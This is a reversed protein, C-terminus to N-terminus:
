ANELCLQITKTECYEDLLREYGGSRGLGSQKFGGFPGGGFDIANVAVGGSEIAKAMRIGRTASQTFVYAALGYETDNAMKLAKDEDSFRYCAAVPGFIEERYMRMSENANVLITPAYFLTDEEILRGGCEIKAGKEIADAVLSEVKNLGKHNIMPGMTTEPELGDGVVLDKIFETLYGVFEDHISEHLLFRNATVCIQGCNKFKLAVAQKAALQIDADEFVIFPANGGLELLLKKVSQGSQEYLYKGTATSGTFSIMRVRESACLAKGIPAPNGSTLYQLAQSPIGQQYALAIIAAVTLPTDESAKCIVSNGAALAASTVYASIGAPFNWPTIAAVIGVPQKIIMTECGSEPAPALSGGLHMMHAAHKQIISIAWELESGAQALPKGQEMSLLEALDDFRSKIADSWANLKELRVSFSLNSWQNFGNEAMDIALLTQEEAMQPLLAIPSQTAPNNVEFDSPADFAQSLWANILDSAPVNNSVQSVM